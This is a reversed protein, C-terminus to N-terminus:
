TEEDSQDCTELTVLRESHEITTNKLLTYYTPLYTTVLDGDGISSDPSLQFSVKCCFLMFQVCLKKQHRGKIMTSFCQWLASQSVQSGQSMHDYLQSCVHGSWCFSLSLSLYLKQITSFKRKWFWFLLFVIVFVFLLYLSFILFM